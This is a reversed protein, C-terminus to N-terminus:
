SLVESGRAEIPNATGADSLHIQRDLSSRISPLIPNCLVTCDLAPRTLQSLENHETRM